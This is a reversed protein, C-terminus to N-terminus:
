LQVASRVGVKQGDLFMKVKGSGFAYGTYGLGSLFALVFLVAFVPDRFGTNEAFRETAQPM